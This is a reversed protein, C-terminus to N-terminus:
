ASRCGVNVQADRLAEQRKNLRLAAAARNTHLEPRHPALRIAETYHTWASAVDGGELAHNGQQKEEEAEKAKLHRFAGLVMEGRDAESLVDGRGRGGEHLLAAMGPDLRSVEALAVAAEAARERRGRARSGLEVQAVGAGVVECSGGATDMAPLVVESIEQLVGGGGGGAGGWRIRALALATHGAASTRLVDIGEAVLLRVLALNGTDCAHHLATLGESDSANVDGGKNLYMECVETQMMAAAMVLPPPLQRDDGTGPAPAPACVNPDAGHRLLAHVTSRHDSMAAWQVPPGLQSDANVDAGLRLLLEVMEVDGNGSAHHLAAAGSSDRADVVGDDCEMALREVCAAHGGAAAILLATQGHADCGAMEAGARAAWQLVERQGTSAAVHVVGRGNGDRFTDLILKISVQREKALSVVQQQLAELEGTKAAVLLQELTQREAAMVKMKEGDGMAEWPQGGGGAGDPGQGVADSPPAASAAAPADDRPGAPTRFSEPFAPMDALNISDVQRLAPWVAGQAVKHLKISIRDQRVRYHSRAPDIAFCLPLELLWRVGSPEEHFRFAVSSNSINLFCTHPDNDRWVAGIGEHFLYLQVQEPTQDWAMRPEAVSGSGGLLRLVAVHRDHRWSLGDRVSPALLLGCEARCDTVRASLVCVLVVLASAVGLDGRQM